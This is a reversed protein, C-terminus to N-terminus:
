VNRYWHVRVAYVDTNGLRRIGNVSQMQCGCCDHECGCGHYNYHDYLADHVTKLDVSIEEDLTVHVFLLRNGSEGYKDTKRDVSRLTEVVGIYQNDDMHRYADKYKRTLRVDLSDRDIVSKVKAINEAQAALATFVSQTPIYKKNIDILSRCLQKAGPIKIEAAEEALCFLKAAFDPFENFDIHKAATHLNHNYMDVAVNPRGEERAYMDLHGILGFNASFAKLQSNDLKCLARHLSKMAENLDEVRTAVIGMAELKQAYTEMKCGGLKTTTNKIRGV